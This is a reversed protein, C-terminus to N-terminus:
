ASQKLFEALVAMESQKVAVTCDSFACLTQLASRREFNGAGDIVYAINHGAHHLLGAREQAQGAKREVVSNTTFQFCVEIATYKGAPSQVVVDFSTDTRGANNSIGPIKGNKWADPRIDFLHLVGIFEEQTEILLPIISAKTEKALVDAPWHKSAVSELEEPTRKFEPM